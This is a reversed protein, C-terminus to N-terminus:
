QKAGRRRLGACRRTASRIDPDSYSFTYDDTHENPHANTRGAGIDANANASHGSLAFYYAAGARAINGANKDPAGVLGGSANVTVDTGLHDFAATDVPTLIAIRTWATGNHQYLYAAGSEEKDLVGKSNPAGVIATTGALAVPSGFLAGTAPAPGSPLLMAEPQWGGNDIFTFAAGANNDATDDQPAGVLIRSGDLAVSFGFRTGAEGSLDDAEIWTTGQRSYLYVVDDLPAGVVLLDGSLAIDWGFSDSLVAGGDSTALRQTEEWVGGDLEFIYVAGSNITGSNKYPGSIAITDGDIAVSFGVSNDTNVSPVLKATQTWTGGSGTFVYAAGVNGSGDDAGAPASSSPVATM